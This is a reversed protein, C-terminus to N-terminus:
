TNQRCDITSNNNSAGKKRIESNVLVAILWKAANNRPKLKLSRIYWGLGHDPLGNSVYYQGLLNIVTERHFIYPCELQERLALFANAAEEFQEMSRYTILKLYYLYPIADVEATDMWNAVKEYRYKRDRKTTRFM